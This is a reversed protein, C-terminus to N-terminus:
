EKTIILFLSSEDVERIEYRCGSAEGFKVFDSETFTVARFGDRCVIVGDKTQEEDLEGLLGKNVQERFWALRHQWFKASYTSFYAKGGEPMAKLSIKILELSDGKLASLGNQLCLVVDFTDVFNLERADKVELYVNSLGKLYEKGFEISEGSIDIGVFSKAHISLEKLIRGYGAGIELVNESGRLRKRIFNIERDLYQRIRPIKTDYVQFLKQSNLNQAYYNRNEENMSLVKGNNYVVSYFLGHRILGDIEDTIFTKDM